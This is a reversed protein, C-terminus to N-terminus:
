DITLQDNEYMYNKDVMNLYRQYGLMNLHKEAEEIDEVKLISKETSVEFGESNYNRRKCITMKDNENAYRIILTDTIRGNKPSFESTKANEMYIDNLVFENIYNLGKNALAKSINDIDKM